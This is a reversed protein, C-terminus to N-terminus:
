FVYSLSGFIARRMGFQAANVGIGGGDRLEYVNDTINVIDVRAKLFQKRGVKFTEEAGLNV